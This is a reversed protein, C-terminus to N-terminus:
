QLIFINNNYISPTTFSIIGPSGVEPIIRGSIDTREDISDGFLKTTDCRLCLIIKDGSNIMPNLRTCSGDPDKLIIIGFYDNTLNGWALTGATWPSVSKNAFIDGSQNVTLNFLHQDSWGYYTLISKTSGDSILIITENLDIDSSGARPRVTIALDQLDDNPKIKGEINSISIGSSVESTTDSGTTMAVEELSGMTQIIITAAIGAILILSIFIILASLGIAAKSNKIDYWKSSINVGNV